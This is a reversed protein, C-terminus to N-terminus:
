SLEAILAACKKACEKARVRDAAGIPRHNAIDQLLVWAVNLEGGLAQVVESTTWPRRERPRYMRPQRPFLDDIGMGVARLIEYVDCGAWCRLLVHGDETEYVSLKTRNTGKCAPCIARWRPGKGTLGDLKSLFPDVTM